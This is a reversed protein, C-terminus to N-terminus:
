QSAVAKVEQRTTDIAWKMGNPAAPVGDLRAHAFEAFNVPLRGKQQIFIRLQKTMFENVDGSVNERLENVAHASINANPVPPPLQADAGPQAPAAAVAAPPATDKQELSVPAKGCGTVVLGALGCVFLIRSIEGRWGSRMIEPNTAM